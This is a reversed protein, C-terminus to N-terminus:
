KPAQWCGLTPGNKVNYLFFWGMNPIETPPMLVKGGNKEVKKVTAKIDDCAVYTYTGPQMEPPPAAVGGRQGNPTTFMHYDGGEGMNITEFKWNFTKEFFTKLAKDDKTLHEFHVITGEPQHTQQTTQTNTTTKAM